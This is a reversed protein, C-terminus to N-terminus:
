GTLSVLHVYNYVWKFQVIMSRCAEVYFVIYATAYGSGPRTPCPWVEGNVVVHVCLVHRRIQM